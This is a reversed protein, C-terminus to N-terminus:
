YINFNYGFRFIPQRGYPSNANHWVDYFLAAIFSSRGSPLVLGGGVLLSPVIANDLKYAQRTPQYFIQNGFVYNAEPQLQIMFQQIPYFRTFLNLGVVGQKIKRYLQGDYEERLSIYQGNIGAGAAVFRNLRYGAQPSFNLITYRGFSVDFNGGAFINEKHFGNQALQEQANLHFFAYTTIVLFLFKKM